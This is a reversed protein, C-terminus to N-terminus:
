QRHIRIPDVLVVSEDDLLVKGRVHRISGVTPKVEEIATPDGVDTVLWGPVHGNTGKGHFVVVASEETSREGLLTAAAAIEITHEALDIVTGHEVDDLVGTRLVTAVRDLKVAYTGEGVHLPLVDIGSAGAGGPDGM